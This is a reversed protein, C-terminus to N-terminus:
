RSTFRIVVGAENPSAYPTIAVPEDAPAASDSLTAAIVTGIIAGALVVGTGIWVGNRANALADAEDIADALPQCTPDTSGPACRNGVDAVLADRDDAKQAAVVTLAIAAVLGAGGLGFGVGAVVPTADFPEDEGTGPGTGLELRVNQDVAAVADITREAKTGDLRAAITHPGPDVYLADKVPSRGIIAGDILVEAGDRTVEVHLATVKALAGKLRLAISERTEPKAGAPINAQAYSLHEAAERHKEQELEVGGLQMAIDYSQYLVWAAEFEAEAEALKKEAYLALGREYHARARDANNEARAPVALATLLVLALLTSLRLAM